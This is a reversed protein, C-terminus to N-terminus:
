ALQVHEASFWLHAIKPSRRTISWVAYVLCLLSCGLEPCEAYFVFFCLRNPLLFLPRM